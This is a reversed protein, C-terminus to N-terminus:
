WKCFIHHSCTWTLTRITSTIRWLSVLCNAQVSYFSTHYNSTMRKRRCTQILHQFVEVVCSTRHQCQLLRCPFGRFLLVHRWFAQAVHCFSKVWLFACLTCTTCVVVICHVVTINYIFLELWTHHWIHVFIIYFSLRCMHIYIYSISIYTLYIFIRECSTMGLKKLFNKCSYWMAENLPILQVKLTHKM